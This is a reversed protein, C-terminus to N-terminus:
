LSPLGPFPRGAKHFEHAIASLLGALGSGPEAVAQRCAARIQAGSLPYWRALLACAAERALPATPLSGMQKAWLQQRSAEDPEDFALVADFRRNFAPDIQGRANSALVLVGNFRELRQLLYATGANAYRDHADKVETRRAFLAEAEDIFLLARAREAAQFAQELNRETEGLWKSWIRGADVVLLDRGLANAIAEAALTKGTGPPGALLLKLGQAPQLRLRKLARLLQAQTDNALVLDSFQALAPRLDVAGQVRLAARTRAAALLTADGPPEGQVIASLRADDALQQCTSAPLPLEAALQQAWVQAEPSEPLALAQAWARASGRQPAARLLQLPRTGTDLRVHAKRACVVLPGPYATPLPLPADLEDVGEILPLADAMLCQGLQEALPASAKVRQCRPALQAPRPDAEDDSVWLLVFPPVHPLSGQLAQALRAQAPPPQWHPVPGPPARLGWLALAVETPTHLAQLALPASDNLPSWLGLERLPNAALATLMEALPLGV